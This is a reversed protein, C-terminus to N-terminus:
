MPTFGTHVTSSLADVRIAVDVKVYYGSVYKDNLKFSVSYTGGGVHKLGYNTIGNKFYVSAIVSANTIPRGLQDKVSTYITENSRDNPNSNSVWASALIATVPTTTPAPKPAPTPAPAPTPTPTPAPTTTPATPATATTTATPAAPPQTGPSLTTSSATVDAVGTPSEPTSPQYQITQTETITNGAPDTAAVTVTNKGPTLAVTATWTGDANVTTKVGNVTVTSGPEAKGSIVTNSGTVTAGDFANVSLGPATTDKTIEIKRALSARWKSRVARIYMVNKGEGIPVDVFTFEGKENSNVVVLANGAQDYVVVGAKPSATGNLTIKSEKTTAPADKLDPMPLYFGIFFLVIITLATGGGVQLEKKHLVAWEKTTM